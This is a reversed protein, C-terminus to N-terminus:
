GIELLPNQVAELRSKVGTDVFKIDSIGEELLKNRLRDSVYTMWSVLPLTFIDIDLDFNGLAIKNFKWKYYRESRKLKLIDDLREITVNIRNKGEYVEIDSGKFDIHDYLQDLSTKNFYLWHYEYEKKMKWFLIRKDVRSVRAKGFKHEPLKFSEFIAKTRDNIILDTPAHLIDNIQNFEPDDYMEFELVPPNFQFDNEANTRVEYASPKANHLFRDTFEVAGSDRIILCQYHM